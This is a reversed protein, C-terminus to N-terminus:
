KRDLAEQAGREEQHPLRPESSFSRVSGEFGTRRPADESAVTSDGKGGKFLKLTRADPMGIIVM